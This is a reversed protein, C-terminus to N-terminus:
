TRLCTRTNRTMCRGTVLTFPVLKQWKTVGSYCLIPYLGHFVFRETGIYHGFSGPGYTCIDFIGIGVLHM